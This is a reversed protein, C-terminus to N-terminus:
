SSDVYRTSGIARAPMAFEYRIGRGVIRYRGRGGTSLPNPLVALWRQESDNVRGVFLIRYRDHGANEQAVAIETETLDFALDDTTTAKVEFMLTGRRVRLVEFDFGLGDNGLDGDNHVFRRYHSRWLASSGYRRRLWEDAVLEGMFGVLETQDSTMRNPVRGGPRDGKKSAGRKRRRREEIEELTVPRDSTQLLEDTLGERMREILDDIRDPDLSVPRGDLAVSRRAQLRGGKLRAEQDRQAALDAETLGLVGLTLSSPLDVPWRDMLRLWAIVAADDLARFDHLGRRTFEAILEDGSGSALWTPASIGGQKAAWLPLLMSARAFFEALARANAARVEAVPPLSGVGAATMGADSELWAAVREAVADDPPLEWQDLWAPDPDLPDSWDAAAATRRLIAAALQGAKSAYDSPIVGRDFEDVSAGRLSDTIADRHRALYSAMAVVHGQPNRIPEYDAGITALVANFRAFDIGLTDRLGALSM